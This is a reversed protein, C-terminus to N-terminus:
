IAIKPPPSPSCWARKPRRSSTCTRPRGSVGCTMAPTCTRRRTALCRVIVDRMPRACSSSFSDGLHSVGAVPVPWSTSSEAPHTLTSLTIAEPRVAALAREGDLWENEPRYVVFLTGDAAGHRRRRRAGCSTTRASSAPSSPRRRAPRLDHGPRGAARHPRRAHRRHPRVDVAGGGPRPHRLRVHHRGPEAAAEARDADGPPAQPRTRRAARRAAAGVPRNVLARALAVRQQQGGSMQRPKRKALKTMKVM